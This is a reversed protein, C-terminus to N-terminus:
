RPARVLQAIVRIGTSAQFIKESRKPHAFTSAKSTFFWRTKLIEQSYSM